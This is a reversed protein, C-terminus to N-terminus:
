ELKQNEMVMAANRQLRKLGLRHVATGTFRLDFDAETMALCAEPSPLPPDSAAFQSMIGEADTRNRPCVKTCRDCGFLSVGLLPRLAVPIEGKHEITLYSVCRRADVFGDSQIAGTPCAEVCLRCAGCRDSIPPSAELELNVLLEGLFLCCGFEPHVLSGQRGIWGLGARCAWERELLPATDVCVRSLLPVSVQGRISEALEKLKGCLIDHYDKGLTYNSWPDSRSASPYRAAAVIVSKVYPALLSPHSRLVENRALYAMDGAYGRALWEQFRDFTQIPGVSAFGAVAFGLRQAEEQIFSELHM